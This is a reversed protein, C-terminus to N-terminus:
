YKEGNPIDTSIHFVCNELENEVEIAAHNLRYFLNKADSIAGELNDKSPQTFAEGMDRDEETAWIRLKYNM